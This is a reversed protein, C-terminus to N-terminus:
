RQRGPVVDFGLGFRVMVEEVGGDFTMRLDNRFFVRPNLYAKYGILAFPRTHQTTEVLVAHEAPRRPRGSTPDYYPYTDLDERRSKKWSLDVGAGVFPHFWANRFVQYHQAAAVRKTSYDSRVSHVIHQGDPYDTWYGYLTARSTIGAEVETKLNDTWYWGGVVSGVASRGYWESDSPRVGENSNFWGVSVSADARVLVAPAEQAGSICPTGLLLAGTLAIRPWKM